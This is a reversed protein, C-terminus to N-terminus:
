WRHLVVPLSENRPPESPRANPGLSASRFRFVPLLIAALADLALDRGLCRHPEIGFAPDLANVDPWPLRARDSDYLTVVVHGSGPESSRRRVLAYQPPAASILKAVTERFGDPTESVLAGEYAARWQDPHCIAFEVISLCSELMLETAGGILGIVDRTAVEPNNDRLGAGVTTPAATALSDGIVPQATNVRSEDRQQRHLDVLKEATFDTNFLTRYMVSRGLAMVHTGATCGFFVNAWGAIAADFVPKLDIPRDAELAATMFSVAGELGSRHATAPDDRCADLVAGIRERESAHQGGDLGLVFGDIGIASGGPGYPVFLDRDREPDFPRVQVVDHVKLAALKPLLAHM